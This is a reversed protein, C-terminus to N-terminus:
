KGARERQQQMLGMVVASQTRYHDYCYRVGSLCATALRGCEICVEVRRQPAQWDVDSDEPSALRWDDYSM